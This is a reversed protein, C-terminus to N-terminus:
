NFNLIRAIMRDRFRVLLFQQGVRLWQHGSPPRSLGREEWDNVVQNLFRGPVVEGPRWLRGQHDDQDYNDGRRRDSNREYQIKQLGSPRDPLAVAAPAGLSLAMVFIIPMLGILIFTKM